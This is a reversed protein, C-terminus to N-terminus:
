STPVQLALDTLLSWAVEREDRLKCGLMILLAFRMLSRLPAKLAKQLHAHMSLLVRLFGVMKWPSRLVLVLLVPYLIAQTALLCSKEVGPM